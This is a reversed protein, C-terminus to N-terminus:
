HYYYQLEKAYVGGLHRWELIVRNPHRKFKNLEQRSKAFNICTGSTRKLVESFPVSTLRLLFLQFFM